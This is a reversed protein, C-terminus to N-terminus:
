LDAIKEGRAKAFFDNFIADCDLQRAIEILHRDTRREWTLDDKLVPSPLRDTVIWERNIAWASAAIDWIPKSWVTTCDGAYNRVIDTLYSGLESHPALRRDLEAVTTTLHSAVPHCPLLVLPAQSDLLVRAAHIDQGLNFEAATPWYYPAHGGLWVITLKEVIRPEMLIASAINTAVAIGLVNLRGEKTAMAREVLDSASDSEVPTTADPLYNKSGRFVAPAKGQVLDLVRHIEEHSKEMGDASNLARGPVVFPAAYVAELDVQEPSLLLHALAFQDDVENFTDTDLVVRLRPGPQHTRM